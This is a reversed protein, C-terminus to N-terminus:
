ATKQPQCLLATTYLLNAIINTINNIIYYSPRDRLPLLPFLMFLFINISFYFLVAANFWFLGQKEIHVFEQRTLLQYFYLLALIIFAIGSATNSASPYETLRQAFYLCLLLAIGTLVLTIKKLREDFFAKYYIFGFFVINIIIYVHIAPMNNAVGWDSSLSLLIDFLASVILFTSILKMLGDLHRYNYLFAIVPLLGSYTAILDLVAGFSM